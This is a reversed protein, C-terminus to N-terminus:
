TINLIGDNISRNLMIDRDAKYDDLVIWPHKSGQRPLLESARDIYGSGL